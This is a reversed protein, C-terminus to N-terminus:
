QMTERNITLLIETLQINTKIVPNVYQYYRAGTRKAVFFTHWTQICQEEYKIM